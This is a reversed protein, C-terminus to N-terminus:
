MEGEGVPEESTSIYGTKWNASFGLYVPKENRLLDIMNSLQDESHYISIFGSSTQNDDKNKAEESDKLFIISGITQHNTDYLIIRAREKLGGSGNICVSYQGIEINASM